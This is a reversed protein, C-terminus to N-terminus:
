FRLPLLSSDTNRTPPSDPKPQVWVELARMRDGPPAPEAICTIQAGLAPEGHIETTADILEETDGVMWKTPSMAVITGSYSELPHGRLQRQDLLQWAFGAVVVVIAAIAVGAVLGWPQSLLNALWTQATGREGQTAHEPATQRGADNGHVITLPVSRIGPAEAHVGSGARSSAAELATSRVRELAATSLTPHREKRISLALRLMQELEVDREPYDALVSELGRGALVQQWAEHFVDEIRTVHDAM